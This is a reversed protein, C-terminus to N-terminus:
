LVSHAARAPDLAFGVRGACFLSNQVYIELKLKAQGIETIGIAITKYIIFFLIHLLNSYKSVGLPIKTM